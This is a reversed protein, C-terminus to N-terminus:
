KRGYQGGVRVEIKTENDENYFTAGTVSHRIITIGDKAVERAVDRVNKSVAVGVRPLYEPPVDFRQVVEPKAQDISRFGDKHKLLNAVQKFVVNLINSDGHYTLLIEFDSNSVVWFKYRFRDNIAGKFQKLLKNYAAKELFNM